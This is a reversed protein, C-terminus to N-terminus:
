IIQQLFRNKETEGSTNLIMDHEELIKRINTEDGVLFCNIIKIEKTINNKEVYKKILSNSQNIYDITGSIIIEIKNSRTRILNEVLDESLDKKNWDIKLIKNNNKLNLKELLINVKDLIDEELITKIKKGEDISKNVHPLLMTIFHWDSVYFSCVKTINSKISVM